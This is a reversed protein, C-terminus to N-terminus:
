ISSDYLFDEEALIELAWISRRLITFTPARYGVVRVSAADAILGRARRLDERFEGLQLSFVRRHAYSHCAIEHGAEAIERVLAPDREAVWGLVFFTGRCGNLAFIDLIRRTNAAFRSPYNGWDQKTVRDAFAEVHFYDEVDVSLGDIIEDESRQKPFTGPPTTM